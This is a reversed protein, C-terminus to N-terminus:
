GDTRLLDDGAQHPSGRFLCGFLVGALGWSHTLRLEFRYQWGRRSFRGRGGRTVPSLHASMRRRIAECTLTRRALMTTWLLGVFNRRSQLCRMTMMTGSDRPLTMGVARRSNKSERTVILKQPAEERHMVDVVCKPLRARQGTQLLDCRVRHAVVEYTTNLRKTVLSSLHRGIGSTM